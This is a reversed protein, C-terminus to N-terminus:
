AETSCFMQHTRNLRKRKLSRGIHWQKCFECRYINNRSKHHQKGRSKTEIAHNVFAAEAASSYKMKGECASAVSNHLLRREAPSTGSNSM